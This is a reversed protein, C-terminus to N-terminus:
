ACPTTGKGSWIHGYMNIFLKQPVAGKTCVTFRLAKKTDPKGEVFHLYGRTFSADNADEVSLITVGAKAPLAREIVVDTGDVQGITGGDVFLIHGVHWNAGHTCSTGSSSPCLTLAQEGASEVHAQQLHDRLSRREGDLRYKALAGKFSPVAVVTMIGAIVLVVTLEMLTFGGARLPAARCPTTPM